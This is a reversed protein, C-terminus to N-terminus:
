LFYNEINTGFGAVDEENDVLYVTTDTKDIAKSSIKVNNIFFVGVFIILTLALTLAPKWGWLWSNIKESINFARAQQEEIREKINLWISDPVKKVEYNDLPNKIQTKVEAFFDKCQYCSKLHVEVQFRREADLEGDLYDTLLLNRMDECKM